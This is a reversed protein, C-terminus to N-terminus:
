LLPCTVHLEFAWAFQEPNLGFMGNLAKLYKCLMSGFVLM